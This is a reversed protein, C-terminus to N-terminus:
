SNFIISHTLQYPEMRVYQMKLLSRSATRTSQSNHQWTDATEKPAGNLKCKFYDNLATVLLKPKSIYVSLSCYLTRISHFQLHEYIGYQWQWLHQFDWCFTGYAPPEWMAVVHWDVTQLLFSPDSISVGIYHAKKTSIRAASHNRQIKQQILLMGILAAILM